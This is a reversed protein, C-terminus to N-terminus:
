GVRVTQRPKSQEFTDAVDHESLLAYVVKAIQVALYPPVANGVQVFQQTRNGEFFYDDPFTQLRAAERVTLSRCQIPDPHIFYHGDKSIHSVITSSPTGSVQVRFRDAFKGSKWNAHHPALAAPYDEAKPSRGYKDAYIASFFYRGLDSSMHGRSEHNATGLLSPNGIWAALDNTCNDPLGAPSKDARVMESNRQLFEKRVKAAYRSLAKDSRELAKAVSQMQAAVTRKWNAFDDLDKSLGSRLVPLTAIVDAVSPQAKHQELLPFSLKQRDYVDRRIGLFIVRHRAQPIGFLESRVIFDEPEFFSLLNQSDDCHLPVIEYLRKDGGLSALDDMLLELISEDKVKSSLIGKVNEMVFVAPRLEKLVRIYERFLFHRPDDEPRYGAIGKNRARGVLSYAQCPPGGIVVTRDGYTEQAEKIAANVIKAAAQTGLELQQVEHEAESWQLPYLQSWDPRTRLGAHYDIYEPPLKSGFHRLFARLRLTAHASAEKEASLMIKFPHAANASEFRSFGEGLGGPGAFLDIIGFESM